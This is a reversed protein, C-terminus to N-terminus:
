RQLEQVKATVEGWVGNTPNFRKTEKTAGAIHVPGGFELKHHVISKGAASVPTSSNGEHQSVPM